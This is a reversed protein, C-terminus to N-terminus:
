SRGDRERVTKNSTWHVVVGEVIIVVGSRSRDGGPAFSADAAIQVDFDPREKGPRM